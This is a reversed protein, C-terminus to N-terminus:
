RVAGFRVASRVGHPARVIEVMLLVVKSTGPSPLDVRSHRTLPDHSAAVVWTRCETRTSITRWIAIATSSPFHPDSQPCNMWRIERLSECVAASRIAPVIRRRDLMRCPAESDLNPRKPSDKREAPQCHSKIEDFRCGGRSFPEPSACSKTERTCRNPKSAPPM